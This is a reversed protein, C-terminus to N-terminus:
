FKSKLTNSVSNFIFSPTIPIFKNTLNTIFLLLIIGVIIFTSSCEVLLMFVQNTTISNNNVLTSIFVISFIILLLNVMKIQSFLKNNENKRTINDSNFLKLYYDFSINKFYESLENINFKPLILGSQLTSLAGIPLSNELFTLNEIQVKLENLKKYILNNKTLTKIAEYQKLLESYESKLDNIKEIIKDKNNILPKFTDNIVNKLEKNVVNTANPTIYYIFLNSLITYLITIYLLINVILSTSFIKGSM